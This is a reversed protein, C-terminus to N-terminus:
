QSIANVPSVGSGLISPKLPQTPRDRMKITFLLIWRRYGVPWLVLRQPRRRYFDQCRAYMIRKRAEHNTLSKHTRKTRGEVRKKPATGGLNTRTLTLVVEEVEERTVKSQTNGDRLRRVLDDLQARLVGTKIKL